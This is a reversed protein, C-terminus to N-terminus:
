RYEGRWKVYFEPDNVLATFINEPKNMSEAHGDFMTVNARSNNNGHRWDVMFEDMRRGTEQTEAEGLLIFKSSYLVEKRSIAVDYREPDELYGNLGYSYYNPGTYNPCMLVSNKTKKNWVDKVYGGNVLPCDDSWLQQDSQDTIGFPIQEDHDDMYLNFALGLQKMNNICKINRAKERANQLAPLLLGALVGIIAIVVLLEILTFGNSRRYTVIM